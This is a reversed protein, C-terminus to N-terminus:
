TSEEWEIYDPQTSQHKEFEAMLVSAKIQAEHLTIEPHMTLLHAAVRDELSPSDRLLRVQEDRTNFNLGSLNTM